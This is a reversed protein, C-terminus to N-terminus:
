IKSRTFYKNDIIKNIKILM